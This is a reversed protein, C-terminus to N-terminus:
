TDASVFHSLHRPNTTAVVIRDPPLGLSLTQAAVIVDCDLERPDATPRGGQRARAWLSAALKLAEDSLPLYRDPVLSNFADLRALGFVKGARNLERRVEYDAIAPVVVHWGAVSWAEVQARCADARVIGPRHAVLGLPGADLVVTRSM